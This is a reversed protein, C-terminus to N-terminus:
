DITSFLGRGGRWLPLGTEADRLQIEFGGILVTMAIYREVGNYDVIYGIVEVTDGVVPRDVGASDWYWFPGIGYITFNEDETAIVLGQGGVLCSAVDGIIDFSEGSLIDYIPGTGNSVSNEAGNCAGSETGNSVVNETGNEASNGAGNGNGAFAFGTSLFLVMVIVVSSKLIKKM